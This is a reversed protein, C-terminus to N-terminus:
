DRLKHHSAALKDQNPWSQAALDVAPIDTPAQADAVVPPLIGMRLYIPRILPRIAKLRRAFVGGAALCVGGAAALTWRIGIENAVAGALLSGFPAMGMFAMAFLSIMFGIM